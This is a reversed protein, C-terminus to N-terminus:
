HSFESKFKIGMANKTLHKIWQAVTISIVKEISYINTWSLVIPCKIIQM